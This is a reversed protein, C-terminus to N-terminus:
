QTLGNDIKAEVATQVSTPLAALLNYGTKSEIFDISVRYTGWNNARIGQANPMDIAIIRTNSNVRAVDNTGAPLVVVVKWTRNPVTVKGNAITTKTGNLGTGGTGYSGAIIYLENGQSVLTRCYSELKEWPGQNNDAAQPMMNTMFFTASNDSVSATRDASPCYHGRDFGSGVYDTNTVAYWGAPLNTDPRFDDQRAASGIWNAALYWSVWNSKGQSNNYAHVYQPKEMLYNNPTNINTIAASPNGMTLHISSSNPATNADGGTGGGTSGGAYDGVSIDDINLRSSTGDTKRIQLRTNSTQNVSFIATSLATTSTTITNGAKTWSTGGNTSYWLEWTSNADTGYKAHKVSVTGTGATKDFLMTLRGVNRLRASVAGTKADGALNGLLADDLQWSGSSLTVNGVTYSGKSGSEFGENLVAFTRALHNNKQFETNKSAESESPNLMEQTNCSAMAAMLGALITTKALHSLVSLKM